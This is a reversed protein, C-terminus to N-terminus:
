REYLGVLLAHDIIHGSMAKEIDSKKSNSDLELNIDLAYLKFQYRHTGSPPCPGGYGTKNFDTVGEKVESPISGEGIETTEPSINWLTWHVFDGGPADPDDLILVLSKATLPLENFTLPPNINEGDCTYKKPISENNRFASSTIKMNSKNNILNDVEKKQPEEKCGAIFLLSLLILLTTFNRFM